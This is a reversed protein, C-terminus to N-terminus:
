RSGVPVHATRRESVTAHNSLADVGARSAAHGPAPECVSPRSCGGTSQGQPSPAQERAVISQPADPLSSSSTLVGERAPESGCQDASFKSTNFVSSVQPLQPAVIRSARSSALLHLVWPVDPFSQNATLGDDSALWSGCHGRTGVSNRVAMLGLTLEGRKQDQDPKQDVRGTPLSLPPICGPIPACRRV